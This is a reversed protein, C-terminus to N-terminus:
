KWWRIWDVTMTPNKSGGKRGFGETPIRGTFGNDLVGMSLILFEPHKSVGNVSKWMLRGDLYVEYYQECWYLGYEHWEGIIDKENANLPLHVGRSQHLQSPLWNDANDRYGNWHLNIVMRRKYDLFTNPPDNPWRKSADPKHQALAEVIDIEAGAQTLYKDPDKLRVAWDVVEQGPEAPQGPDNDRSQLWFAAGAGPKTNFKIRAEVYGYTEEFGACGTWKRTEIHGSRTQRKGDRRDVEYVRLHLKGDRVEVADPHARDAFSNSSKKQRDLTLWRNANLPGNFDEEFVKNPFDARRHAPPDAWLAQSTFLVLLLSAARM